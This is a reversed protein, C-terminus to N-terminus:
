AGPRPDAAGVIVSAIGLPLRAIRIECWTEYERGRRSRYAIRMPWGCLLPRGALVRGVVHRSIIQTLSAARPQILADLPRAEGPQLMDVPEFGFRTGDDLTLDSLHVDYAPASTVNELQPGCGGAVTRSQRSTWADSSDYRVWVFPRM